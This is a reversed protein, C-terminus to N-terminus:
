MVESLKHEVEEKCTFEFFTTLKKFIVEFGTEQPLDNNEQKQKADTL